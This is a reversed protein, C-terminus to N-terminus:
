YRVILFRVGEETRQQRLKHVDDHLQKERRQLDANRLGLITREHELKLCREELETIKLHHQKTNVRCDDFENKLHM